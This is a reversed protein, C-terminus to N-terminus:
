VIPQKPTDRAFTCQFSVALSVKKKENAYLSNTVSLAVVIIKVRSPNCQMFNTYMVPINKWVGRGGRIKRRIM